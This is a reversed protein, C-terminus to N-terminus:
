RTGEAPGDSGAPYEDLPVLDKAWASLVPTLVRWAEEAEDGRISLAANGDLVDLLLRGYAPLEPPDIRATLTLPAFTHASAGIGTLDLTVDEPDLGFRLVNPLAEGSHGLPLHPVHRFHVAVEKRDRRLAKGSRLRFITGAWRWNDLELEVEAFTETRRATDVGAEGTYAPVERGDLRGATYRARRTRHVIDADTLPQVSRLVDLKRDRLDREGLSIPPEMAVLCLLQLLHNQVMDKLAGAGDYYGARGELALSEDWTIDVEAIHAANWVPELMRNALRTGLVNQVTTMALFHDVRFVAQEPMLDALLRNLEVASDLDEGFPKELVIRSGPALDAESLASVAAPFVAPPLALYAAVPGDGAVVAAVEAPDSVDARRYHSAAVVTDRVSAPLEGAHRDLQAGAWCRFEATDWDHRGAGALQFSDGLHGAARLAALGPLLYRATLDGTAGFIALREMM